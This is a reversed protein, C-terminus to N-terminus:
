ESIGTHGIFPLFWSIVPLTTWVISFPETYSYEDEYRSKVSKHRRYPINSLSEDEPDSLVQSHTELSSM